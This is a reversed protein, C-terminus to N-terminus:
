AGDRTCHDIVDNLMERAEIGLHEFREPERGSDSIRERLMDLLREAVVKRVTRRQAEFDDDGIVLKAEFRGTAISMVHETGIDLVTEFCVRLPGFVDTFSLGAPPERRETEDAFRGRGPRLRRKM